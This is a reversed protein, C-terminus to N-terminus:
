IDGLVFQSTHKITQVHTSQTGYIDVCITSWIYRCLIHAEYREWCCSYELHSGACTERCLGLEMQVRYEMETLVFQAENLTPVWQARRLKGGIMFRYKPANERM